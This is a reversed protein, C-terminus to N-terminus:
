WSTNCISPLELMSVFQLRFLRLMMRTAIEVGSAVRRAPTLEAKARPM